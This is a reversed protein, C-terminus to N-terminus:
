VPLDVIGRGSILLTHHCCSNWILGDLFSANARLEIRRWGVQLDLELRIHNNQLRRSRRKQSQHASRERTWLAALVKLDTWSLKVTSLWSAGMEIALSTAALSWITARRSSLVIRSFTHPHLNTGGHILVEAADALPEEEVAAEALALALTEGDTARDTADTGTAAEPRTTMEGSSADWDDNVWWGGAADDTVGDTKM